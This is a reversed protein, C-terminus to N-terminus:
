KMRSLMVMSGDISSRPKHFTKHSLLNIIFSTHCSITQQIEGEGTGSGNVPVEAQKHWIRDERSVEDSRQGSWVRPQSHVRDTVGSHEAWLHGRLQHYTTDCVERGHHQHRLCDCCPLYSGCPLMEAAHPAPIGDPEERVEHPFASVRPHWSWVM